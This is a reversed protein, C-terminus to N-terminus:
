SYTGSVRSLRAPRQGGCRGPATSTVIAGPDALVEFIEAAAAGIRRSVRVPKCGGEAVAIEMRREAPGVM